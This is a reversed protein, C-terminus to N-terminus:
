AGVAYAVECWRKAEEVSSFGVTGSVDGWKRAYWKGNDVFVVFQSRTGITFETGTGTSKWSLESQM